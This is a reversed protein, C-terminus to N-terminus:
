EQGMAETLPMISSRAMQNVCMSQSSRALRCCSRSRYMAASSEVARHAPYSWPSTKRHTPERMIAAVHGEVHSLAANGPFGFPRLETRLTRANDVVQYASGNTIPADTLSTGDPTTAFGATKVGPGLPNLKAALEPAWVPM